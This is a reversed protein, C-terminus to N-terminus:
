ESPRSAPFGKLYGKIIGKILTIKGPLLSVNPLITDATTHKRVIM